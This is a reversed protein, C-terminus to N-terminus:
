GGVQPSPSRADTEARSGRLPFGRPRPRRSEDRWGRRRLPNAEDVVRQYDEGSIKAAMATSAMLIGAGLVILSKTLLDKLM